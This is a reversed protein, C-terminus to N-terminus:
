SIISFCGKQKGPGIFNKWAPHGKFLDGVYNSQSDVTELIYEGSLEPLNSEWGEWLLRIVSAQISSFTFTRGKWFVSRYDPSHRPTDHSPTPTPDSPTVTALDSVTDIMSQSLVRTPRVKPVRTPTPLVYDEDQFQIVFGLIQEVPVGVDRAKCLAANIIEISQSHTIPTM